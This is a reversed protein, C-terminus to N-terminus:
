RRGPRRRRRPRRGSRARRSASRRRVPRYRASGLRGARGDARTGRHRRIRGGIDAQEPLRDVDDAVVVDIPRDELRGGVQGVAHEVAEDAGEAVGAVRAEHRGSWTRSALSSRDPENEPMPAKTPSRPPEGMMTETMLPEGASWAPRRLPSAMMSISPSAASSSETSSTTVRTRPGAPEVTWSVTM